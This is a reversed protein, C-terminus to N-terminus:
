IETGQFVDKIKKINTGSPTDPKEAANFKVAIKFNKNHNEGIISLAEKILFPENEKAIDYHMKHEFFISLVNDKEEIYSINNLATYLQFHSGEIKTRIIKLIDSKEPKKVSMSNTESNNIPSTKKEQPKNEKFVSPSTDEKFFADKINKIETLIRKPRILEKYNLLKLLMIELEIQIDSSYKSTEYSKFLVDLINEIEEYSFNKAFSQITEANYSLRNKLVGAKALLINRFFETLESLIQECSVGSEILSYYEVFVTERNQELIGGIFTILKEEGILGLKEEIKKLTVDGNCFSIVQDLLTYADRMSGKGHNAVWQVADEEFKVSNDSLIKKLSNFIDESPILRFNFQQCRSRITALVKNIETTAFIFVVYKPPEEITKLLANFASKSLMHVEDIIYVKYASSVPPYLIEEQIVRIDNISTNSAGDIEIVDNNYGKTISVCNECKNCPIASTGTECNLAKAIIRAASTKGVGRPGSLLYANAIQKNQISNKLTSVVFEQGILEDLTQPRYRTASVEYPM